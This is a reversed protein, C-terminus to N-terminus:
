LPSTERKLWDLARKDHQLLPSVKEWVEAHYDNVWKKEENDLLSTDILKKHIPCMTVNELGLFGKDGFNNPTKVERVLVIDEIRIGYKGDEYYGPENSITMGPKLPASHYAIRIGIGHPGEHVNLFHGVGHGTGHRYDLGDRWL